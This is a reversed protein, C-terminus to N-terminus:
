QRGRYKWHFCAHQEAEYSVTGKHEARVCVYLYLALCVKKFLSYSLILFCTDHSATTTVSTICNSHEASIILKSQMVFMCEHM